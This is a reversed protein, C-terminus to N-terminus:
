PTQRSRSRLPTSGSSTACHGRTAALFALPTIADSGYAEASWVSDFGLEEARQVLAVPVDLHPGSYGIALGLKM